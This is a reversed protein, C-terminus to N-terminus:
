THGLEKNYKMICGKKRWKKKPCEAEGEEYSGDTEDWESISEHFSDLIDQLGAQYSMFKLVYIKCSNNEM